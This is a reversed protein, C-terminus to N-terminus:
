ESVGIIGGAMSGLFMLFKLMMAWISWPLVVSESRM